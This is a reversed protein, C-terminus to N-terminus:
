INKIKYIYIKNNNTTTTAKKKPPPPSPYNVSHTGSRGFGLWDPWTLSGGVCTTLSTEPGVPLRAKGDSFTQATSIVASKCSIILHKIQTFSYSWYAVFNHDPNAAAHGGRNGSVAKGSRRRGADAARRVTLPPPPPPRPPYSPASLPASVFVSVPSATTGSGFRRESGMMVSDHSSVPVYIGHLSWYLQPPATIQFNPM